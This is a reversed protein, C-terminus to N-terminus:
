LKRQDRAAAEAARADNAELTAAASLPVKVIGPGYGAGNISHHRGLVLEVLEEVPEAASASESPEETEDPGFFAERIRDLDEDTYRRHGHPQNGVRLRRARPIRGSREAKRVLSPSVGLKRAVDGVRM